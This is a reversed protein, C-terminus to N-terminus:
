DVDGKTLSTERGACWHQYTGPHAKEFEVLERLRQLYNISSTPHNEVTGGITRVVTLVVAKLEAELREIETRAQRAVMVAETVSNFGNARALEMCDSIDM